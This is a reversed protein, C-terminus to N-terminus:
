IFINICSKSSTTSRVSDTSAITANLNTDSYSTRRHSRLTMPSISKEDEDSCFISHLISLFLAYIFSVTCECFVHMKKLIPGM